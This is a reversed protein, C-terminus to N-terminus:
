RARVNMREKPTVHMAHPLPMVPQSTRGFLIAAMTQWLIRCDSWTTASRSYELSTRLKEPLIEQRYFRVPDVAAALLAAEDRFRLSAPDTIGPRSRLLARQEVTYGAVFEPLEPRPGVLSMDGALVNLLQPLEDLRSHRLRRGVRTIRSDEGVTLPAGAAARM